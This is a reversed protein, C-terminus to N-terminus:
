SAISLPRQTKAKTASHKSDSLGAKVVRPKCEYQATKETPGERPDEKCRCAAKRLAGLLYDLPM